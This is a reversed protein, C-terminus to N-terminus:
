QGSSTLPAPQLDTTGAITLTGTVPTSPAFSGVWIQHSGAIPTLELYPNLNSSGDADDNCQFDGNPNRVILTTDAEGEFFLVLKEAAGEDGDAWDFTFTPTADIFGTCLENGLEINYAGLEGGAMLETVYPTRDTTIPEDPTDVVPEGDMELVGLPLPEGVADPNPTRPFLQALDMTAPSFDLGTVVLFGATTINEEFSGAYIAYRGPMPADFELYPDLVLPNFDDNCVIDGDPTVVVLTPDGLTLLFIRLTEVREDGAWDLVVEPREDVTGACGIGLTSADVSPESVAGTHISVLMPDLWFDDGGLTLTAEMADADPSFTGAAEEATEEQSLLVLEEGDLAYVSQVALTPCCLPDTPGSIVMDMVIQGDEVYMDNIGIRDGLLTTAINRLTGEEDVVVALNYFVGSGDPDDILVVVADEAGDGTVDGYAVYGTLVVRFSGNEPDIRVYEGDELTVLGDDSFEYLYTMNALAEYTFPSAPPVTSQAETPKPAALLALGMLLSFAAVFVKTKHM